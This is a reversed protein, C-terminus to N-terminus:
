RGALREFLDLDSTGRRTRGFRTFDLRAALRLSAENAPDIMCVSRGGPFRAEFAATAAAMAEGAIGRGRHERGVIWMAEPAEDFDPGIGRRFRAFGVEGIVVGSARDTVLLPAFGFVRRHGVLRLLRAWAGEEDLTPVFAVGDPPARWLPAYAAIDDPRHPRLLLRETVLVEAEPADSATLAISPDPRQSM